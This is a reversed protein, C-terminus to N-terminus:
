SVDSDSSLETSGDTSSSPPVTTFDELEEEEQNLDDIYKEIEAGIKPDLLSLAKAPKSFDIPSGDFTLNHDVICRPFWYV